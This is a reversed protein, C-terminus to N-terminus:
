QPALRSQIHQIAARAAAATHPNGEALASALLPIDTANGQAALTASATQRLMLPTQPDGLLVRALELAQPAHHRSALQLAPIRANLPADRDQALPIALALLSASDVSPLALNRYSAARFIGDLLNLATGAWPKSRTSAASKLEDVLMPFIGAGVSTGVAQSTHVLFIAFGGIHQLAYDRQIQSRAPDRAIRILADAVAPSPVSQVTLAEEIDNVLSGWQMPTFQSPHSPSEIFAILADIEHPLLDTPLDKILFNFKLYPLSPGDHIISSVVSRLPPPNTPPANSPAAHPAEPGSDNTLKWAVGLGGLVLLTTTLVLVSPRRSM